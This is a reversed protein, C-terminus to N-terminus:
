KIVSQPKMVHRAKINAAAISAAAIYCLKYVSTCIDAM